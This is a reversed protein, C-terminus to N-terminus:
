VFLMCHWKWKFDQPSQTGNSEAHPGEGNLETLDGRDKRCNESVWTEGTCGQPTSNKKKEECVEWCELECRSCMKSPRARAQVRILATYTSSYIVSLFFLVPFVLFLARSDVLYIFRTMRTWLDHLSSHLTTNQAEERRMHSLVDQQFSGRVRFATHTDPNLGEEAYFLSGAPNACSSWDDWGGEARRTLM